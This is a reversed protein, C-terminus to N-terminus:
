VIRYSHKFHCIIGLKRGACVESKKMPKAFYIEKDLYLYDCTKVMNTTDLIFLFIFSYVFYILFIFIWIATSLSNIKEAAEEPQYIHTHAKYICVGFMPISPTFGSLAWSLKNREDLFAPMYLASLGRMKALCITAEGQISDSM